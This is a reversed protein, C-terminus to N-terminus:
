HIVVVLQGYGNLAVLEKYMNRARWPLMLHVQLDAWLIQIAEQAIEVRIIKM